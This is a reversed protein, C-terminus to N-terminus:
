VYALNEPLELRGSWALFAIRTDDETPVVAGRCAWNLIALWGSGPPPPAGRGGFPDGPDPAPEIRGVPEASGGSASSGAKATAARLASLGGRLPAVPATPRPAGPLRPRAAPDQHPPLPPRPPTIPRQPQVVPAAAPNAVQLVMQDGGPVSLGYRQRIESLGALGAPRETRGAPNGHLDRGPEPMTM